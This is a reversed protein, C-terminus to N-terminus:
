RWLRGEGMWAAFVLVGGRRRLVGIDLDYGMARGLTGLQPWGSSALVHPVLILSSLSGSDPDDVRLQGM